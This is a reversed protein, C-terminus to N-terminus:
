GYCHHDCGEVDVDPPFGRVVLGVDLMGSSEQTRAEWGIILGESPVESIKHRESDAEEADHGEEAFCVSLM